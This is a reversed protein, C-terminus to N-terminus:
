TQSLLTMAKHMAKELVSESHDTQEGWEGLTNAVGRIAAYELTREGTIRSRGYMECLRYFQPTEMDVLRNNKRVKERGERLSPDTQQAMILRPDDTPAVAYYYDSAIGSLRQVDLNELGSFHPKIPKTINEVQVGAGALFARHILYVEGHRDKRKGIYGATGILVIRKVLGSEVMEWILPELCGTGIGTLALTFREFKWFHFCRYSHHTPKEGSIVLKAARKLERPDEGACLILDHSLFRDPVVTNPRREKVTLHKTM